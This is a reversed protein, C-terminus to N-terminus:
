QAASVSLMSASPSGGPYNLAAAAGTSNECTWTYHDASTCSDYPVWTAQNPKIQASVQNASHDLTFTVSKIYNLNPNGDNEVYKYHVNSVAYGSITGQGAGAHTEPVTNSAMYAFGATGLVAAASLPVALRKIIRNM